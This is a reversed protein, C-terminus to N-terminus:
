KKKRSEGIQWFASAIVRQNKHEPQTPNERKGLIM